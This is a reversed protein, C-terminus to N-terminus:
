GRSPSLTYCPLIMEELSIGGHLFSGRYQREYEHYNTPYVFYYDEKALIYNKNLGDAPLRFEAPDKVHVAQKADCKLNNGYKYRLNTSTSRDGYVLSARRGMVAGHDTTMVVVADDQRSIAKMAELLTSHAFWSQMVSRLAAEDPALERLIESDSRGHAFIDVFNFVMSVVDLSQFSDVQRMLAQGEDATFIKAYKTKLPRNGLRELQAVLFEAEHRNKSGEGPRRELWWDPHQEMIDQPFLGSFIANRAYPTATPLISIYYQREIEFYPELMPMIALWQDLRVCDIVVLYVRKGNSLHPQVFRPVVDPSLCPREASAMWDRYVAEVFRGFAANVQRRLDEYSQDLGLDRVRALELEWGTMRAYLDIWGEADLSDTPATSLRAFEDVFERTLQGEQLRRGELLRKIALFIQSPNVPKILYDSIRKGIAEDMLWEEESKTILVVPVAPDIEQIAKLTELGGMGPMMEDLLVIDFRRENCASLADEGNAVATVELGREELFLVHPRLLDIEDDAWLITRRTTM